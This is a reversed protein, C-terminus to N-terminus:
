ASTLRIAAMRRSLAPSMEGRLIRDMQPALAAYSIPAIPPMADPIRGDVVDELIARWAGADRSDLVLGGIREAERAAASGPETVVLTPVGLGVCEYIKAPVQRPQDQALVLALQSKGLLQLAAARPLIGHFEVMDEVDLASLEARLREHNPEDMHGAIRLKLKRAADPRDRKLAHLGELIASFNRGVYLTGVYAISYGEFRDSTREPLRELDIGNSVHEVPLEPVYHALADAFEQTNVIVRAAYRFLFSQLLWILIQLSRLSLGYSAWKGHTGYWPDRMDVFCPESRGLTAFVGAFHASHPPGSTVVADFHQERLLSRAESAAALVWGRGVDPFGLATQGMLRVWGIMTVLRNASPPNPDPKMEMAVQAPGAPRPEAPGKRLAGRLRRAVSNYVSNLTVRRPRYHRHVGPVPPEDGPPAATVVHVDWGMRALYKSM